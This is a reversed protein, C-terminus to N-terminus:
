SNKFMVSNDKMIRKGGRLKKIVTFVMLTEKYYDSKTNKRLLNENETNHYLDFKTMNSIIYENTHHNFHDKGDPNSTAWSLIIGKKAHKLLNEMFYIEKQSSIREGVDLSVIWDFKKAFGFPYELNLYKVFGNTLKAIEERNDYGEWSGIVQPKNYLNKSKMVSILVKSVDPHLNSYDRLWCKGCLGIDAGFEGITSNGIYKEILTCVEIKSASIKENLKNTKGTIELINKMPDDGKVVILNEQKPAEITVKELPTKDHEEDAVLRTNYVLITFLVISFLLFIKKGKNRFFALSFM